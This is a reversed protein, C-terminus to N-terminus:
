LPGWVPVGEAGGPPPDHRSPGPGPCRQTAMAMPSTSITRSRRSRWLRPAPARSAACASPRSIPRASPAGGSARQPARASPTPALRPAPSPTTPSALSPMPAAPAGDRAGPGSCIGRGTAWWSPTHAAPSCLSLPRPTWTWGPSRWLAGARQSRAGGRRPHIPIPAVAWCYRPWAGEGRRPARALACVPPLVAASREVDGPWRRSAVTYLAGAM